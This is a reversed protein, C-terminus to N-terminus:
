GDDSKSEVNANTGESESESTEEPAEDDTQFGRAVHSLIRRLAAVILQADFWQSAWYSLARRSRM